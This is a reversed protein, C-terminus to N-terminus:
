PGSGFYTAGHFTVGPFQNGSGVNNNQTGGPANFQNGPGHNAFAYRVRDDPVSPERAALDQILARLGEVQSKTVGRSRVTVRSAACM